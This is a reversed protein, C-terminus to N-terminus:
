RRREDVHLEFSLQDTGGGVPNERAAHVLAPTSVAGSTMLRTMSDSIARLGFAHGALVIGDKTRSISSLWAQPPLRNGIDAIRGAVTYGSLRIVSIQRDLDVMSQVDTQVLALHQLERRSREVRADAAREASRADHVRIGEIGWACAVILLATAISALPLHLAQPVNGLTIGFQPTANRLYNFRIM